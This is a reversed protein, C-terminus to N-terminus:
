QKEREFWELSFLQTKTYVITLTRHGDSQSYCGITDGGVVEFYDATKILHPPLQALVEEVSPKFLAAHGSTHNTEIRALEWLSENVKDGWVPEWLFGSILDKPHLHHLKGEHRGIPKIKESLELLKNPELKKIQPCNGKLWLVAM